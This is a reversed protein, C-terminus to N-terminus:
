IDVKNRRLDLAACVCICDIANDEDVNIIGVPFPIRRINLGVARESRILVTFTLSAVSQELCAIKAMNSRFTDVVRM